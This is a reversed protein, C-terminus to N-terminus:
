RNRPSLLPRDVDPNGDAIPTTDRVTVLLVAWRPGLRPGARLSSGTGRTCEHCQRSADNCTPCTSRSLTSRM